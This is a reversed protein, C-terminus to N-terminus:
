VRRNRRIQLAKFAAFASISLIVLIVGSQSNFGTEPLSQSPRIIINTLVEDTAMYNNVNNSDTFYAINKITAAQKIALVNVTFTVSTSQGPALTPILVKVESYSSQNEFDNESDVKISNTDLKVLKDDIKDSIYYEELDFKGKNTVVITYHLKEGAFVEAKDVVKTIIFDQAEKTSVENSFAPHGGDKPSEVQAINKILGSETSGEVKAKFNIVVDKGASIKPLTINLTNNSSVDLANDSGTITISDLDLLLISADLYDTVTYDFADEIGENKITLTYHLYDGIRVQQEYVEKKISIVKLLTISTDESVHIDVNEPNYVRAVNEITGRNTFSIISAKFFLKVEGNAPIEPIIYELDSSNQAAIFKNGTIGQDSVLSLEGDITSKVIYNNAVTNSYNHVTITYNLEEGVLATPKDVEIDIRVDLPIPKVSTNVTSSGSKENYMNYVTATNTLLGNTTLNPDVATPFKDISVEYTILVKNNASIEPIVVEINNGKIGNYLIGNLMLSDSVISQEDSIVDRIKYDSIPYSNPNDVEITYKLIDGVEALTKNVTKTIAIEPLNLKITAQHSSYINNSDDKLYAINNVLRNSDTPFGIIKAKYTIEFSEQAKLEDISVTLKSTSPDLIQIGNVYVSGDVLSLESSLSDEVLFNRVVSNGENKINIVYTVEDYFNATTQLAKKEFKIVHDGPAVSTSTSSNGISENDNNYLSAENTIYGNDANNPDKVSPFVNISADFSIIASSNAPIEPITVVINQGNLNGVVAGNLMLSNSIVSLYESVTDKVVYNNISYNNKNVVEITYKLDDMVNAYTKDVSKIIDVSPLNIITSVQVSDFVNGLGDKLIANNTISRENNTPFTTIKADYLVEIKAGPLIDQLALVINNGSPDTQVVGNVKLSGKVFTLETPLIDELVYSEITSLGVNNINVTYTLVENFEAIEKSVKKTITVIDAGPSISTIVESDDILKNDRNYLMAQNSILRNRSNNPDQTTPLGNVIGKYTISLTENALITPIVVEINQGLIVSNVLGDAVLSGDVIDLYNSVVDRVTYNNINYANKNVVQITYLLEDGIQAVTLDVAKILEVIPENITVTAQIFRVPVDNSDFLIVTNNIERTPSSPFAIVKAQYTITLTQGPTLNSVKYEFLNSSPNPQVVGNVKISNPVFSLESPLDDEVNYNNIISLGDNKVTITYNLIDNFDATQEQVSKTLLVIDAGPSVSVVASSELINENVTNYLQATNTILGNRDNNPDIEVPLGNITAKYTITATSNALIEPITVTISRGSLGDYSVGDLMLSASVIDLNDSVIDKIVYDKLIFDNNNSVVITYTLEDGIDATAVNVSKSLEVIPRNVITTTQKSDYLDGNADKLIATNTISREINSPFAVVKAKYVIDISAGARLEPITLVIKNNTPNSQNAGGMVLSNTVFELESPLADEITYGNIISLGINEITLTYTLEGNFDVTVASVKKAFSLLDDGPTISVNVISEGVNENAVNYLTAKNSILANGTINPDNTAPFGNVVAKYEIVATSNATIEPITVEINQGSVGNHAVGDLQLSNAVIDLDSAVIDKVVYNSIPYSNFNKVEITYTLESGVNALELDVKKNIELVPLNVITTTEKIGYTVDKNDILLAKNTISNDVNDPFAIIKAKYVIVVTDQANLVPLTLQITNNAPDSQAVGNMTLSNTVLELESPLADKVSYDRIVSFGANRVTVTYTLEDNFNAITASVEKDFALLDQGPSVSINVTSSGINEDEENFLLATNSILRNDIIDPDITTPFKNVIVTFEITSSSNALIEPITVEINQGTIGNYTIGDLKLSNAVIDLDNSVLDKVVHNNISYSNFNDVKITYTFSSNVMTIPQSVNKTIEVVSENVTTTTQKTSYTDGSADKLIATNTIARDINNPIGVITAKYVIEISAGIRLEPISLVINNNLPNSQAIGGMTLSNAVYSLESPLADEVTYNNIISFGENKITLTYTLDSMFDATLDSVAKDFSVLDSGPTVSVDISSSGISEDDTNYLTATNSILGNGVVAPDNTAPFGNVIAKYEIIASGNAAIAPITIEINQGTIGNNSTGNLTLSNAVIDLDTAVIDKVVYNNIVYSNLNKVEITYTLEGTVNIITTNVRKDIELVPLNIITTAQMTSYVEGAGDKLTATNTISRDASTPFTKVLAKYIIEFSNGPTLGNINLNITNNTPNTQAVGNLTLSDAEYEIDSPLIDEVTYNNITTLGTNTITVKYTLIDNVDATTELVEKAFLLIDEGPLISVNVLSEGVKVTNDYLMATNSILGNGVNDPDTTTPFANIIAKYIITASTNAPIVPITIDINQGTLGNNPTGDLTLSNAVIDLYDSVSDKVVFNNIAYGNDNKVVITYTLEDGLNAIDKDVTKTIDVVSDNVVTLASVTTHEIGNSDKLIASNEVTRGANTPFAVIKAKYTITVTQNPALSPITLNLSNGVPDTQAVGDLLFTGAVFSLESPLTDQVVYNSVALPGENKLTITYSLDDNFNATAQDVVKDFTLDDAVPNVSIRRTIPTVLVNALDFLSVVSTILGNGANNPDPATPFGTVTARFKIQSTQNVALTPIVGKVNNGTIGAIPSGNLTLSGPVVTLDSPLDASVYYNSVSFCALNTVDLTYDVVDGISSIQSTPEILNLTVVLPLYEVYGMFNNHLYGDEEYLLNTISVRRAANTPFRVMRVQYSINLINTDGPANVPIDPLNLLIKNATAGAVPVGNMRLSGSVIALESPITTDLRFGVAPGTGASNDFTMTYTIVDACTPEPHSSSGRMAIRADTFAKGKPNTGLTEPEEAFGSISLLSNLIVITTIIVAIISTRFLNKLM